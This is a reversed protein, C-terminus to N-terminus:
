MDIVLEKWSDSKEDKKAQIGQQVKIKANCM